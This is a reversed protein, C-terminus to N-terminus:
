KFRGPMHVPVRRALAGHAILSADYDRNILKTFALTHELNALAERTIWDPTLFVNGGRRVPDSYWHMDYDVGRVLSPLFFTKRGPVGASAIGLLRMFNRRNM